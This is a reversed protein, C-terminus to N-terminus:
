SGQPALNAPSPLIQDRAPRRLAELRPTHTNQATPNPPKSTFRNKRSADSYYIQGQLGFDTMCRTKSPKHHLVYISMSKHKCVRQTKVRTNASGNGLGLVFGWCVGCFSWLVRFRPSACSGSSIRSWPATRPITRCIFSGVQLSM